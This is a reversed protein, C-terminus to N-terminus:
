FPSNVSRKTWHGFLFAYASTMSDGHPRFLNQFQCFTWIRVPMSVSSESWRMQIQQQHRRWHLYSWFTPMKWLCSIWRSFACMMGGDCVSFNRGFFDRGVCQVSFKVDGLLCFINVHNLINEGLIKTIQSLFRMNSARMVITVFNWVCFCTVRSVRLM